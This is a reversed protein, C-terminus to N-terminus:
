FHGENQVTALNKYLEKELIEPYISNMASEVLMRRLEYYTNKSIHMKDLVEKRSVRKKNSMYLINFLERQELTFNNIAIEIRRKEIEKERKKYELYNIRQEKKIVENEVTVIISDYINTDAIQNSGYMTLVESVPVNYKYVNGEKSLSSKETLSVIKDM